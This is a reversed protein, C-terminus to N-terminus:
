KFTATVTNSCRSTATECVKLLYTAPGSFRRTSTYRGTNATNQILAGNRYVNMTAGNAGIWLYTMAQLDVEKMWSTVNLLISPLVFTKSASCRSTGTECVKYVYSAKGQTPLVNDQTGDNATTQILVGDRYLRVSAGIAGSWTLLVHQRGSKVSGTLSLSITAPAPAVSAM